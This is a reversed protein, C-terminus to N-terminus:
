KNRSLDRVLDISRSTAEIDKVSPSIELKSNLDVGYFQEAQKFFTLASDLNNPGLGGSLFFPTNIRPLLDKLGQWNFAKGTGGHSESPTDFLLFDIVGTSVFPTFSKEDKISVAKIIKINPLTHRLSECFELTEEGHLQIFEHEAQKAKQFIYSISSNVFVGVKKTKSRDIQKNIESWPLDYDIFRPSKEYYIFGLYDPTLKSIAFINELYKLGCIKVAVM